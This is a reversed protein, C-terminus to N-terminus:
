LTHVPPDHANWLPRPPALPRPHPSRSTKTDPRFIPPLNQDPPVPNKKLGPKVPPSPHKYKVRGGNLMGAQYFSSKRCGVATMDAGHKIDGHFISAILLEAPDDPQPANGRACGGISGELGAM